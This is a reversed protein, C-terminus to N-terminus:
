EDEDIIKYKRRHLADMKKSIDSIVYSKKDIWKAIMCKLITCPSNHVHLFSEIKSLYFVVSMLDNVKVEKLKKEKLEILDPLNGDYNYESWLNLFNKMIGEEEEIDDDHINKGIWMLIKLKPIVVYYYTGM